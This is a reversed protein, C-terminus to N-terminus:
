RADALLAEAADLAELPTLSGSLAHGLLHVAAIAAIREGAAAGRGRGWRAQASDALRQAASAREADPGAMAATAVLHAWLAADDDAPDGIGATDLDILGRIVAPDDADVFLQGLHLDGHITAPVAPHATLREDVATILARVRAAETPLLQSLRRGYWRRRESLSRRAPVQEAVSAIGSRLAAIADLLAEPDVTAAVDTAPIGGQERLVLLGERAHGVVEPVDLGAAIWREHRAAIDDVLRPRTVKLYWVADVTRARIVARRGPRYAAMQLELGTAPIGLRGLLAAAADPHVAVTLAPLAPDGPYFWAARELGDDARLRLVGERPDDAPPSTELYVVRQTESGAADDLQVRYGTVFGTATAESHLATADLLTLGSARALVALVERDIAAETVARDDGSRRALADGDRPTTTTMTMTMTM